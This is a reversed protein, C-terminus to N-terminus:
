PAVDNEDVSRERLIWPRGQASAAGHHRARPHRREGVVARKGRVGGGDGGPSAASAAVAPSRSSATHSRQGVVDENISNDRISAFLGPDSGAVWVVHLERERRAVVEISYGGKGKGEGRHVRPSAARRLVVVAVIRSNASRAILTSGVLVLQIRNVRLKCAGPKL